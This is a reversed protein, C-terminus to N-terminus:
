LNSFGKKNKRKVKKKIDIKDSFPNKLVDDEYNYEPQPKNRRNNSNGAMGKGTTDYWLNGAISVRAEKKQGPLQFFPYVSHRFSAPFFVMQGEFADSLRYAFNRIGGLMDIYEFEFCGVKRDQIKTGQFQPLDKQTEWDYPIKLWIAFSYAGGHFHYPNFEGPYQYNVWFETLKLPVFDEMQVFNRVPDSGGNNKRFIEVQPLIVKNQFFDNEDIIGLSNSVNGALRQKYNDDAEEGKRIIKWLYEVVDPALETHVWGYNPGPQWMSQGTEMSIGQENREENKNDSRTEGGGSGATYFKGM